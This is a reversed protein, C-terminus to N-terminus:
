RTTRRCRRGLRMDLPPPPILEAIRGYDEARAGIQVDAGLPEAIEDRVFQKLSKGTIRRIVEGILHGYNIAHYGSATGPAWWPAQRALHVPRRRGTTSTRSASRHSGGPFARRTPYCTASRSTRSATRPSSPGTSPRGARFCRGPWPRDRDIRRPRNADEHLLLLQRDHERAWPMSKARDAHGGWIDVVLEGDIDLAISAGLEEGKAIEDALAEAVKDFRNDCHGHVVDNM